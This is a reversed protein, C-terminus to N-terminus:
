QGQFSLACMTGDYRGCKPILFLFHISPMNGRLRRPNGLSVRYYYLPESQVASVLSSVCHFLVTLFRLNQDLLANAGQPNM